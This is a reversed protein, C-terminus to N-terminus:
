PFPFRCIILFSFTSKTSFPCRFSLSFIYKCRLVGHGRYSEWSCCTAFHTRISTFPIPSLQYWFETLELLSGNGGTSPNVTFIPRIRTEWSMRRVSFLCERLCIVLLPLAKASIQAESPRTREGADGDAASASATSGCSRGWLKRM